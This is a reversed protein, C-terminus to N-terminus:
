KGGIRLLGTDYNRTGEYYNVLLSVPDTSSFAFASLEDCDTVMITLGSSEQKWARKLLAFAKRM